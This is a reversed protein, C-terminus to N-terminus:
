FCGSETVVCDLEHDHAEVPLEEVMQCDFGIGVKIAHWGDRALLRDYFGAGRGLRGGSKSFAIGPVLILDIERHDAADHTHAQPERIGWKSRQMAHPETVYFLDLEGGNVQPYCVRRDGPKLMEVDPEGPLPAFLCIVKATKWQPLQGLHRCIRASKEEVEALTLSGLKERIIKRLARKATMGRNLERVRARALWHPVGFM